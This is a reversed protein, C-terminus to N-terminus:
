TINGQFNPRDITIVITSTTTTVTTLNASKAGLIQLSSASTPMVRGTTASQFVKVQPLVQTATKLVVANGAIQYWGYQAAVNASMAVAVPGGFKATNPSLATQYTTSNYTVLAGVATGVVGLLYIFEGEGFTPDKARMIKGLAHRQTTDSTAIPQTGVQPDVIYYAM